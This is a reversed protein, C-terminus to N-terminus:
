KQVRISASVVVMGKIVGLRSPPDVFPRLRKYFVDLLVDGGFELKRAKRFASIDLVSTPRLYRHQEALSLRVLQAILKINSISNSCM